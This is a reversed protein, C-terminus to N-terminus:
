FVLLYTGFAHPRSLWRVSRLVAVVSVLPLRRSRRDVVQGLVLGRLHVQRGRISWWHVRRVIQGVLVVVGVLVHIMAVVSFVLAVVLVVSEVM